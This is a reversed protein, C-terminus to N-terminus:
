KKNLFKNLVIEETVEKMSPKQKFIINSSDISEQFSAREKSTIKDDLGLLKKNIYLLAGVKGWDSSGRKDRFPRPSQYEEPSKNVIASALGRLFDEAESKTRVSNELYKLKTEADNSDKLILLNDFHKRQNDKSVQNAVESKQANAKFGEDTSVNQLSKKTSEWSLAKKVQNYAGYVVNLNTAADAKAGAKSQTIVHDPQLDRWSTIEGTMPDKLDFMLYNSLIAKGRARLAAEREDGKMFCFAARKAIERSCPSGKTSIEKFLTEPLNKSLYESVADSQKRKAEYAKQSSLEGNNYISYIPNSKWPTEEMDKMIKKVAEQDAKDLEEINKMADHYKLYQQAHEPSNFKAQQKTRVSKQGPSLSDFEQQQQTILSRMEDAYGAPAKALEKTCDDAREICTNGCAVGKECQKKKVM